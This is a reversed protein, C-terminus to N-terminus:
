TVEVGCDDSTRIARPCRDTVATVGVAEADGRRVLIKERGPWMGVQLAYVAEWSHGELLKKQAAMHAPARIPALMESSLM